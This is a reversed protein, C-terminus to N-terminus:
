ESERDTPEPRHPVAGMRTIVPRGGSGARAPAAGQPYRGPDDPSDAPNDGLGDVAGGGAPTASTM